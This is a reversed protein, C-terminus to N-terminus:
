GIARGRAHGHHPDSSVNRARANGWYSRHTVAHPPGDDESHHTLNNAQVALRNVYHETTTPGVYRAVKTTPPRHRHLSNWSLLVEAILELEEKCLNLIQEDVSTALAHSVAAPSQLHQRARSENEHFALGLKDSPPAADLVAKELPTATSHSTPDAHAFSNGARFEWRESNKAAERQKPQWICISVHVEFNRGGKVLAQLAIGLKQADISRLKGRFILICHSLQGVLDLYVSYFVPQTTAQADTLRASLEVLMNDTRTDDPM